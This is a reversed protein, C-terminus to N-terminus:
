QPIKLLGLNISHHNLVTMMNMPLTSVMRKSTRVPEDGLLTM